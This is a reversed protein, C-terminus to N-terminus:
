ALDPFIQTYAVKGKCTDSSVFLSIGFSECFIKLFGKATSFRKFVIFSCSCSFCFTFILPSLTVEHLVLTCIERGGSVLFYGFFFPPSNYRTSPTNKQCSLIQQHDIDHLKLNLLMKPETKCYTSIPANPNSTKVEFSQHNLRSPLWELTSKGTV